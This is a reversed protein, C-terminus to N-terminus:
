QKSGCHTIQDACDKMKPDQSVAQTLNTLISHVLNGSGTGGQKSTTEKENCMDQKESQVQDKLYKQAEDVEPIFKDLEVCLM